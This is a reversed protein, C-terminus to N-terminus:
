PLIVTTTTLLKVRVNGDILPNKFPDGLREGTPGVQRLTASPQDMGTPSFVVGCPENPKFEMGTKPTVEVRVTGDAGVVATTPNNLVHSATGLFDNINIVLRSGPPLNTAIFADVTGGNEQCRASLYYRKQKSSTRAGAVGVLSTMVLVAAIIRIM